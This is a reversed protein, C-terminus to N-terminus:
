LEHETRSFADSFNNLSKPRMRSNFNALGPKSIPTPPQTAECSPSPMTLRAGYTSRTNPGCVSCRRGAMIWVLRLVPCDCTSMENGSTSFNSLMGGARTSPTVANTDIISPQEFYQLKQTTGYVRPSSIEREKSLTIASIRSRTELPTFSTVNSPWFTFAYMPSIGSPSDASKASSNDATCAIAPMSRM